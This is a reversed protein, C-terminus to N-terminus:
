SLHPGIMLAAPMLASHDPIISPSPTSEMVPRVGGTRHVVSRKLAAGAPGQFIEAGVIQGNSYRRFGIGEAARRTRPVPSITTYTIDKCEIAAAVMAGLIAM